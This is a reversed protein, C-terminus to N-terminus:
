IGGRHLSVQKRIKYFTIRNTISLLIEMRQKKTLITSDMWKGFIYNIRGSRPHMNFSLRLCKLWLSFGRKGPIGQNPWQLTSRHVKRLDQRTPTRIYCQQISAGEPNCLEALTSVQFFIRWNNILRLESTTFGLFTFESM